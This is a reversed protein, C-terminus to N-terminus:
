GLGFSPYEQNLDADAPRITNMCEQLVEQDVRKVAWCIWQRGIAEVREEMAREAKEPFGTFPKVEERAVLGTSAEFVDFDIEGSDCLLDVQDPTLGGTHRIFDIAHALEHTLTCLYAELYSLDHQDALPNLEQQREQLVFGRLAEIDCPVGVRLRRAYMSEEIPTGTTMFVGCDNEGAWDALADAKSCLLIDIEVNSGPAPFEVGPYSDTALLVAPSAVDPHTAIVQILNETLRTLPCSKNLAPLDFEDHLPFEIANLQVNLRTM